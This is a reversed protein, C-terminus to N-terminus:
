FSFFALPVTPPPTTSSRSRTTSPSPFPAPQAPINGGLMLVVGFEGVTHTFTLVAATLLSPQALPLVIRMFTVSPSIGLGSAAELYSHDVASFGAVLPQM